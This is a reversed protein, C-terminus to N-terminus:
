QDDTPDDEGTGVRVTGVSADALKEINMKEDVTLLTRWAVMVHHTEDSRVYLIYKGDLTKDLVEDRKHNDEQNYYQFTQVGHATLKEWDVTGGKISPAAFEEWASVGAPPAVKTRTNFTKPVEEEEPLEGFHAVLQARLDDKLEDLTGDTSSIIALYVCVPRLLKGKTGPMEVHHEYTRVYGPLKVFDPQIRNPHLPQDPHRPDSTLEDLAYSNEQGYMRPLRISFQDDGASAYEKLLDKFPTERQYEELSADFKDEYAKSGCGSLGLLVLAVVVIHSALTNMRSMRVMKPFYM